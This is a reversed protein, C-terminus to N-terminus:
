MATLITMHHEHKWLDTQLSLSTNDVSSCIVAESLSNEFLYDTLEHKQFLVCIFHGAAWKM